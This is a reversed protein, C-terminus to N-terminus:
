ESEEELYRWTFGRYSKKRGKCCNTVSKSDYGASSVARIGDFRIVEGTEINTGEVPKRQRTAIIKSRWNERMVRRGLKVSWDHNEQNTVWELNDVNNNTRDCDIHNVQPKNEPNPIFAQAVLRHVAFQKGRNDKWLSVKLYGFRNKWAKLMKKKRISYVNGNEDVQYAGEYGQIDKWM